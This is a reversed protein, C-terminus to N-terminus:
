KGGTMTPSSGPACGTDAGSGNSHSATTDILWTAPGAIDEAQRAVHANPGLIATIWNAVAATVAPHRGSQAPAWQEALVAVPRLTAPDHTTLQWAIAAPRRQRVLRGTLVVVWQPRGTPLARGTTDEPSTMTGALQQRLPPLRLSPM